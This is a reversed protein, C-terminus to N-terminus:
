MQIANKRIANTMANILSTTNPSVSTNGVMMFEVNSVDFVAKSIESPSERGTDWIDPMADNQSASEIANEGVYMGNQISFQYPLVDKLQEDPVTECLLPKAPFVQTLFALAWM